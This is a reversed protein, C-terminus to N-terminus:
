IAMRKSARLASCAAITFAAAAAPAATSDASTLALLSRVKVPALEASLTSAVAVSTAAFAAAFTSAARTFALM